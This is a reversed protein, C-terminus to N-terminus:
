ASCHISVAIYYSLFKDKFYSFFVIKGTNKGRAVMACGFRGKQALQLASFSESKLLARLGIVNWSELKVFNTDRTLAPPRMTKPSFPILGAKFDPPEAHNLSLGVQHM